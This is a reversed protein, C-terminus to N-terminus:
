DAALVASDVGAGWVTVRDAGGAVGLGPGAGMGAVLAILDDGEVGAGVPPRRHASVQADPAVPVGFALAADAPAAAADRELGGRGAGVDTRGAVLGWKDVARDAPLVSESSPGRPVASRPAEGALGGVADVPEEGSGVAADGSPDLVHAVDEDGGASWPRDEAVPVVDLAEAQESLEGALVLLEGVFEEVGFALPEGDAVQAGKEDGGARQGVAVLVGGPQSAEGCADDVFDGIRPVALHEAAVGAPVDDGARFGIAVTLEARCDGIAAALLDAGGLSEEVVEFRPPSGDVVTALGVEIGPERSSARVPDSEGRQSRSLLWRGPSVSGSATGAAPGRPCM